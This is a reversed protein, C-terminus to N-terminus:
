GFRWSRFGQGIAADRWCTWAATPPWAHSKTRTGAQQYVSLDAEIAGVGLEREEVMAMLHVFTAALAAEEFHLSRLWQRHRLWSKGDRYVLGRRLLLSQLRQRRTVWADVVWRSGATGKCSRRTRAM